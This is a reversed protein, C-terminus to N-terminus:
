VKASFPSIKGHRVVHGLYTIEAQYFDVKMLNITLNPLKIRHFIKRSALFHDEWTDSCIITDDIYIDVGQIYWLCRNMIIVFEEHRFAYDLVSLKWM